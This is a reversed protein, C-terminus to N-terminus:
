NWSIRRVASSRRIPWRRFTPRRFGALSALSSLSSSKGSNMQPVMITSVTYTRKMTLAAVFGLVMFVVTCIIITKRGAWLQKVLALIDIGEDQYNDINPNEEM